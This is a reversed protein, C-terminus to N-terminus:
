VWNSLRCVTQGVLANAFCDCWRRCLPRPYPEAMNTKFQKNDTGILNIHPKHTRSCIGHGHCVKSGQELPVHAYMIRTRKRWPMGYQCYDVITNHVHKQKTTYQASGALWLRSTAPNELGVPIRVKLCALFLSFSVKMLINGIRVKERDCERLDPLGMM